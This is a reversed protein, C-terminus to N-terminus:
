TAPAKRSHVNPVAAIAALVRKLNAHAFCPALFTQANALARNFSIKRLGGVFVHLNMPKGTSIEILTSRNSRV